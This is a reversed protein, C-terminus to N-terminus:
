SGTDNASRVIGAVRKEPYATKAAINFVAAQWAGGLVRIMGRLM